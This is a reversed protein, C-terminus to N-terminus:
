LPSVDGKGEGGCVCASSVTVAVFFGPTFLAFVFAGSYFLAMVTYIVPLAVIYFMYSFFMVDDLRGKEGWCIIERGKWGAHGRVRAFVKVAETALAWYYYLIVLKILVIPYMFFSMGVTIDLRSLAGAPGAIGSMVKCAAADSQFSLVFFADCALVLAM